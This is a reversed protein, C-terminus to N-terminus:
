SENIYITCRPFLETRYIELKLTDKLSIGPISFKLIDAGLHLSICFSELVSSIKDKSDYEFIYFDGGPFVYKIQSKPYANLMKEFFIKEKMTRSILPSNEFNKVRDRLVKLNSHLDAATIDPISEPVSSPSRTELQSRNESVWIIKGQISRLLTIDDKAFLRSNVTISYDFSSIKLYVSLYYTVLNALHVDEHVEFKTSKCKFVIFKSTIFSANIVRIEDVNNDIINKIVHGNGDILCFDRELKFEKTSLFESVHSIDEGENAPFDFFQDGVYLPIIRM